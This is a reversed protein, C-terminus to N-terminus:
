SGSSKCVRETGPFETSSYLGVHFNMEAASPLAAPKQSPQPAKWADWLKAETDFSARRSQQLGRPVALGRSDCTIWRAISGHMNLWTSPGSGHQLGEREAMDDFGTATACLARLVSTIALSADVALTRHRSDIGYDTQAM